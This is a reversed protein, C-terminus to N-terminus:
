TMKKNLNYGKTDFTSIGYGDCSLLVSIYFDDNTLREAVNDFRKLSKACFIIGVYGAEEARSITRSIVCEDNDDQAILVTEEKNYNTSHMSFRQSMPVEPISCPKSLKVFHFKIQFM